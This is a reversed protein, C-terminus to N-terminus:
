RGGGNLSQKRYGSPLEFKELGLTKRQIRTVEQAEVVNGNIKTSSALPFMGMRTLENTWRGTSEAHEEGLAKAIARSLDGLGRTAWITTQQDPYKLIIQTCPYGLIKKEKGTKVLRYSKGGDNEPRALGQDESEAQAIEFFTKDEDNVMWVLKKDNRYIMTSAPTSGTATNEIRVMDVKIWMTMVFKQIKGTEDTTLNKSEVIGEFQATSTQLLLLSCACLMPFYKM